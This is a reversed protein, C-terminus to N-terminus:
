PALSATSESASWVVPLVTVVTSSDPSFSVLQSAPRAALTTVAVKSKLPLMAVSPVSPFTRHKLLLPMLTLALAKLRSLPVPAHAL